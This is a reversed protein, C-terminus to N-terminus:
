IVCCCKSLLMFLELNMFDNMYHQKLNFSKINKSHQTWSACLTWLFAYEPIVLWSDFSKLYLNM